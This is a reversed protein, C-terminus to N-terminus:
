EWEGMENEIDIICDMLRENDDTLDDIRNQLTIAYFGLGIALLGFLTTM